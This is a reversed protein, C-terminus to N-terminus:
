FFFIILVARYKRIIEACRNMRNRVDCRKMDKLIDLLCILNIPSRSTHKDGNWVAMITYLYLRSLIKPWQVQVHLTIFVPLLIPLVIEGM